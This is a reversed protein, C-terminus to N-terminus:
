VKTKQEDLADISFRTVGAIFPTIKGQGEAIGAKIAAETTVFEGEIPFHRKTQSDWVQSFTLLSTALMPLCITVVATIRILKTRRSYKNKSSKIAPKM